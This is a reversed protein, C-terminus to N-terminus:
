VSKRVMVDTTVCLPPCVIPAVGNATFSSLAPEQPGAAINPEPHAQPPELHQEPITVPSKVDHHASDQVKLKQFLSPAGSPQTVAKSTKPVSQDSNRSLLAKANSLKVRPIASNHATTVVTDVLPQFSRM